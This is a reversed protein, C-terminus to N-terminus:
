SFCARRDDADVDRLLDSAAAKGLEGLVIREVLEEAAETLNRARAPRGLALGLRLRDPEPKM